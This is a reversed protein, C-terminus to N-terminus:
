NSNAEERLQQLIAVSRVNFLVRNTERLKEIETIANEYHRWFEQKEVDLLRVAEETEKAIMEKNDICIANLKSVYGVNIASQKNLVQLLTVEGELVLVDDKLNNYKYWHIMVAGSVAVMAGIKWYRLVLPAVGKILNLIM